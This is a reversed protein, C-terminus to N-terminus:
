RRAPTTSGAANVREGKQAAKNPEDPWIKTASKGDKIAAKGDQTDRQRPAPVLSADVIRGSVPVYGKEEFQRDFAKMARKPTGTETMRNRFRRITSEDPTSAGLHFGLLRM